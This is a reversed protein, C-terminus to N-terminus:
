PGAATGPSPKFPYHDARILLGLMPHDIYHLEGSRMRRQQQLTVAHRYPYRVVVDGAANGSEDEVASGAEDGAGSLSPPLPPTPMTTNHELYDGRTNLWLATELHLYRERYLRISGQLEPYVGTAAPSHILLPVSRARAPVPQLWSEHFLVTLGQSRALARAVAHLERQAAPLALFATSLTLEILAAATGATQQAPAMLDQSHQQAPAMLDQSHQQAREQSSVAHARLTRYTAPYALVPLLPWRESAAATADRNAFVIIEVRYWNQGDPAASVPAALASGLVAALWTLRPRRPM